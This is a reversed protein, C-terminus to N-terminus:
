YFFQSTQDEYRKPKIHHTDIIFNSFMNRKQTDEQNQNTVNKIRQKPTCSYFTKTFHRDKNYAKLM